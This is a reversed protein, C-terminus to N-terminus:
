ETDVVTGTQHDSYSHRKFFSWIVEYADIDMNAGPENGPVSHKGGNIRYFQIESSTFYGNYQFLTVTSSDGPEIDPLQTILPTSSCNNNEKWYDIVDTASPSGDIRVIEDATGHMYCLPIPRNLNFGNFVNTSILGSIPAIAAIREQIGRAAFFTMFGGNSMGCVYVKSLDANYRSFIYDIIYNMLSVDDWPFIYHANWQFLTEGNYAGLLAQPILLIFKERDAIARLGSSRIENWANGNAGHLYFVLPLKDSTDTTVPMYWAMERNYGQYKFFRHVLLSNASQITRFEFDLKTTNGISDKAVIAVKYNISPALGSLSFSLGNLGCFKLNNNIYIDYVITKNEPDSAEEWRFEATTNSVAIERVSFQSPAQDELTIFSFSKYGIIQNDCIAEIRGEYNTKECLNNIKFSRTTLSDAVVSDGLFISYTVNGSPYGKASTWVLSVENIGQVLIVNFSDESVIVEDERCGSFALLLFVISLLKRMNM